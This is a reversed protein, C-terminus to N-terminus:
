LKLFKSKQLQFGVQFLMIQKEFDECESVTRTLAALAENARATIQDKAKALKSLKERSNDDM